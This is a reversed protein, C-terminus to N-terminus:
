SGDGIRIRILVEDIQAKPVTRLGSAPLRALLPELERVLEEERGVDLAEHLAWELKVRAASSAGKKVAQFREFLEAHAEMREALIDRGLENLAVDELGESNEEVLRELMACVERSTHSADYRDILESLRQKTLRSSGDLMQVVRDYLADRCEARIDFDPDLDELHLSSGADLLERIRQVLPEPPEPEMDLWAALARLEEAIEQVIRTGPQVRGFLHELVALLARVRARLTELQRGLVTREAALEAISAQRAALAEELEAIRANREAIVRELGEVREDESPRVEGGIRVEVAESLAREEVAVRRRRVYALTEAAELMKRWDEVEAPELEVLTKVDEDAVATSASRDLLLPLSLRSLPTRRKSLAKLTITKRGLDAVTKDFTVRPVPIALLVDSPEDRDLRIPALLAAEDLLVPVEDEPVFTLACDVEPPFFHQVAEALSVMERPILGAPPLVEFYRTAQFRPTEAAIADMQAQFQAHFALRVAPPRSPAGLLSPEAPLLERRGLWEDLWEVRGARLKVFALPLADELEGLSAGDVLIRRALSAREGHEGGEADGRYPVLTLAAGEAISGHTLTGADVIDKPYIGMLDTTHEVPRLVLVYLGSQARPLREARRRLGYTVDVLPLQPLVQTSIAVGKDLWVDDGSPTIGYGASVAIGSGSITARLGEVVGWGLARAHDGFRSLYYAQERSMDEATLFRGDFYRLRHRRDSLWTAEDPKELTKRDFYTSTADAM